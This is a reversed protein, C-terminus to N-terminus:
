SVLNQLENAEQPRDEPGSVLAKLHTRSLHTYAMTMRLDSHGVAEKV